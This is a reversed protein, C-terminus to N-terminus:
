KVNYKKKKHTPLGAEKMMMWVTTVSVDLHKAMARLTGYTEYMKQLEEKTIEM